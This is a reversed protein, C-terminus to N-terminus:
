GEGRETPGSLSAIVHLSAFHVSEMRCCCRTTRATGNSFCQLVAGQVPSSLESSSRVAEPFCRRVRGPDSAWCRCQETCHIGVFERLPGGHFGGVHLPINLFSWQQRRIERPIVGASRDVHCCPGGFAHGHGQSTESRQAHQSVGAMQSGESASATLRPQRPCMQFLPSRRPSTSWLGGGRVDTISTVGNNHM